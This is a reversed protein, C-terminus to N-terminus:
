LKSLASWICNGEKVVPVCERISFDRGEQVARACNAGTYICRPKACVPMALQMMGPAEELGAKLTGKYRCALHRKVDHGQFCWDQMHCCLLHSGRFFRGPGPVSAGCGKWTGHVEPHNKVPRRWLIESIQWLLPHLRVRGFQHHRWPAFQRHRCRLTASTRVSFVM